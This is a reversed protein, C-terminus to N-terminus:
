SYIEFQQTFFNDNKTTYLDLNNHKELYKKVEWLGLGHFKAADQPQKTTYGKEFISDIKIDKNIYTNQIIILVKNRHNDSRFTINIIKEDCISAAEIANDLLIGLIRTLDFIKINLNSLDTFIELNFKVAASDATYYKDALLSYLAPNNILEPNLVSLNNNIQCEELLGSYYEKLGNMNNTSIYGGISQVINNFDHKFGRINDYLTTLTKNFMKQEELIQTTSELKNTRLLSYISISFYLLVVFLSTFVLQFPILDIYSFFIYFEIGITLSGVILNCTLLSSNYRETLKDPLPVHINYHVFFKYIFYLITYLLFSIIIKHLPITAIDISSCGILASYIIVLFTSLILIIIYTILEALISKILGPKFILLILLPMALVNFFTNLPSIIFYNNVLAVISFIIIFITNKNKTSPIRLTCLAISLYLYSEIFVCPISICNMVIENENILLEWIIRFLNM